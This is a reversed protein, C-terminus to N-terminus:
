GFFLHQVCSKLDIDDDNSEQILKGSGFKHKRLIRHVSSISLTSVTSVTRILQTNNMQLHVLKLVCELLKM